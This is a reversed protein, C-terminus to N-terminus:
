NHTHNYRTMLQACNNKKNAQNVFLSGVSRHLGGFGWGLWRSFMLMEVWERAHLRARAFLFEREFAFSLVLIGAVVLVIRRVYLLIDFM